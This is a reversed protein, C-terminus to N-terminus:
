ATLGHASATGEEIDVPVGAYIYMCGPGVGGAMAAGEIVAVTVQPLANLEALVHGIRRSMRMADQTAGMAMANFGKLDGGACFFGGKGRITMGRIDSQDKISEIVAALDEVAEDTLPNRREPQNFWVTLWGADLSLALTKTKPLTAM